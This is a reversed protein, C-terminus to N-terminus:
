MTLYLTIYQSLCVGQLFSFDWFGTANDWTSITLGKFMRKEDDMWDLFTSNGFIAGHGVTIRGSSEWKVWFARYNNCDMINPTDVKLKEVGTAYDRIFSNTNGNGGIVIEYTRTHVNNFFESLAVHADRCAQVRFVISNQNTISKSLQNYNKEPLTTVRLSSM